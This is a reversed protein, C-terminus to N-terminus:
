HIPAAQGRKPLTARRVSRIFAKSCRKASLPFTLSTSFPPWFTMVRGPPSKELCDRSRGPHFFWCYESPLRRCTAGPILIGKRDTVATSALADLTKDGNAIHLAGELVIFHEDENKHIHMPAGNRPDAVLELMTYAGVTEKVSTRIKFCEGPTIQLWEGDSQPRNPLVKRAYRRDELEEEALRKQYDTGRSRIKLM